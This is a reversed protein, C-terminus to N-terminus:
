QRLHPELEPPRCSISGQNTRDRAATREFVVLFDPFPKEATEVQQDALELWCCPRPGACPRCMAALPGHDCSWCSVCVCRCLTQINTQILALTVPLTGPFLFHKTSYSLFYSPFTSLCRPAFLFDVLLDKFDPLMSDHSNMTTIVPCNRKHQVVRKTEERRKFQSVFECSSTLSVTQFLPSCCPATDPALLRGRVALM